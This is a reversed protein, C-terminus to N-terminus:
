IRTLRQLAFAIGAATLITLSLASVAAEIV